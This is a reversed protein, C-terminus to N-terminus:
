LAAPLWITKWKPRSQHHWLCSLQLNLGQLAINECRATFPCDVRCQAKIAKQLTWCWSSWPDMTSRSQGKARSVVCVSAKVANALPEPRTEGAFGFSRRHHSASTVCKALLLTQPKFRTGQGHKKKIQTSTLALRPLQSQPRSKHGFWVKTCVTRSGNRIVYPCQVACQLADKWFIIDGSLNIIFVISSTLQKIGGWGKDCSFREFRKLKRLQSILGPLLDKYQLLLSTDCAFAQWSLLVNSSITCPTDFLFVINAQTMPVTPHLKRNPDHTVFWLLDAAPVNHEQCYLLEESCLWGTQALWCAVIWFFLPYVRKQCRLCVCYFFFLKM